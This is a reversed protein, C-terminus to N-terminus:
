RSTPPGDDSNNGDSHQKLWKKQSSKIKWKGQPRASCFNRNEEEASSGIRMPTWRKADNLKKYRKVLHQLASEADISLLPQVVSPNKPARTPTQKPQLPRPASGALKVPSVAVLPRKLKVEDKDSSM